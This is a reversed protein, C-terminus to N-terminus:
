AINLSTSPKIALSPMSTPPLWSLIIGLDGRHHREISKPFWSKVMYRKLKSPHIEEAIFGPSGGTKRGVARYVPTYHYKGTWVRLLSPIPNSALPTGLAPHASLGRQECIRAVESMFEQQYTRHLTFRLDLGKQVGDHNKIPTMEELFRM